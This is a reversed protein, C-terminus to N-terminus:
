LLLKFGPCIQDLAISLTVEPPMEYHIKNKTNKITQEQVGGMTTDILVVIHCHNLALNSLKNTKDVVDM